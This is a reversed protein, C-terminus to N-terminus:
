DCDTYNSGLCIEALARARAIQLPLMRDAVLDYYKGALPHGSAVALEFWMLARVHNREVGSGYLYMLGLGIQASAAAEDGRRSLLSTNELPGAFAGLSGACCFAMVAIVLKRVICRPM